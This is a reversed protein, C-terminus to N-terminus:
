RKIVDSIKIWMEKSSRMWVKDVFYGTIKIWNQTKISSTFSTGEAWEYLKRGNLKDYILANKNLRFASAKFRELKEVERKKPEVIKKIKPLEKKIVTEKVKKDNQLFEKKMLLKPFSNPEECKVLVINEITKEKNILTKKSKVKTKLFDQNKVILGKRCNEKTKLLKNQKKVRNELILIKNEYEIERKYLNKFSNIEELLIKNREREDKLQLSYIKAETKCGEYDVRLKTIDSVIAEIRKMENANLSFTFIFIILLLKM